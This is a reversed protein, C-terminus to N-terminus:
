RVEFVDVGSLKWVNEIKTLRFLATGSEANKNLLKISLSVEAWVTNADIKDTFLVKTQWQEAQGAIGGSFKSIEGSMILADLEAKRASVAARDFQSFFAKVSEDITASVNAKNRGQRAALTAGYEADVNIAEEFFKAAQINQGSKLAIEGLGANAWGLSRATLLKEDLVARFEREADSTKGQALLARGLWTRADDFRPVSQLVLRANKEAKVFDQQDFARKIFLIADNNDLERPAVDDSYDTQPYIKDTDIEARVIKNATKFSVEGFSQPAITTQANLKEGNTATASVNVTTEILGTNRLAIKTQAGSAQPLGIRLNTDTVQDFAYDLFDKQAAFASRLDKLELSGDKLQLRVGTFFEDQGIKKALLRWIMAGKNAVATYYYDDIPSVVNLPADRQAIAAYSTRQRLREIDAIDKGYQKELFQTAIYRPLGERIAGYGDGGISVANGIWLKAFAEAITMATQSDIKQRRFVNQDILITGGSSFGAGRKVAVIKIPEDPATGLLNATFTKADSALSALENARKQEGAGAGKQIFVSVGNSNVADWSGSVFFPQGNLRQEFANDKQMGSAIVTEGNASSIHLRVPAFDAGRAFFWSNPTPYWFSLPLFQSGVPTLANLGSNEEVKLKYDVAVTFSANAPTSPLRVIIRQLNRNGAIKEEGKTFDAVADNVKVASVEASPSIRLTLRSGANGSVNKLNLIAKVTLHRDTESQPLTATINYRQVEWTKSVRSEDQAFVSFSFALLLFVFKITLFNKM